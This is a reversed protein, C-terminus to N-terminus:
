GAVRSARWTGVTQGGIAYSGLMSNGAVDGTYTIQTSGVTGFTIRQGGLMGTLSLSVAPNTLAITGHVASGTQTWYLTFNGAYQGSYQGDWRGSLSGAAASTTRAGASPAGSASARFAPTAASAGAAPTTAGSGAVLRAHSGGRCGAALLVVAIAIAATRPATLM